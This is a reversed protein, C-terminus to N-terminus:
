SLPSLPQVPPWCAAVAISAAPNGEVATTVPVSRFATPSISPSFATPRCSGRWCATTPKSLPSWARCARGDSDVTDCSKTPRPWRAASNSSAWIRPSRTAPPCCETPVCKMARREQPQEPATLRASGTSRAAGGSGAPRATRGSALARCRISGPGSGARSVANAVKERAKVAARSDVSSTSEQASPSAISFTQGNMRVSSSRPWTVDNRRSPACSQSLEAGCGAGGSAAAAIRSSANSSSILAARAPARARSCNMSQRNRCSESVVWYSTLM